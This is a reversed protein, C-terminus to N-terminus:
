DDLETQSLFDESTVIEVDSSQVRAISAMLYAHFEDDNLLRRASSWSRDLARQRDLAEGSLKDHRTAMPRM